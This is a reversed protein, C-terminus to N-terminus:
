IQMTEDTEGEQVLVDHTMLIYDAVTAIFESNTPKGKLASTSYSFIETVMDENARMRGTEIAHRINREAKSPTTNFKEAIIPYLRKTIQSALSMDRMVEMIGFRLCYYGKINAPIGLEKLYNSIIIKLNKEKKNIGRM